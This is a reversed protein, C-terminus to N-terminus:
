GFIRENFDIFERFREFTQKEHFAAIEPYNEIDDREIWLGDIGNWINALDSVFTDVYSCIGFFLTNLLFLTVLISTCAAIQVAWTVAYGIGATQDFPM